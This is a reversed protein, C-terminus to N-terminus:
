YVVTAKGKQLTLQQIGWPLDFPDKLDADPYKPKVYRDFLTQILINPVPIGDVRAEELEFKGRGAAGNLRGKVFLNHTGGVLSDVLPNGTANSNFTIQTDSSVSGPLLQVDASDMQAPIKDRLSYMLYSELEIESLEVRQSGPQRSRSEQAKKITDIKAQLAEATKPSLESAKVEEASIGRFLVAGAVAAVTVILGVVVITKKM